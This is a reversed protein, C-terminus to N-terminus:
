ATEVLAAAKERVVNAAYRFMAVKREYSAAFDKAYRDADPQMAEIRNHRAMKEAETARDELEAVVEDISFPDANAYVLTRATTKPEAQMVHVQVAPNAKAIAGVRVELSGLRSSLAVLWVAVAFFSVFVIAVTM